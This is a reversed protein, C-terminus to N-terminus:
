AAWLKQQPGELRTATKDLAQATEMQTVARDRLAKAARRIEAPDRSYRVGDPGSVLPHGALRLQQIGDEISRRPVALGHALNDLTRWTGDELRAVILAGLDSM